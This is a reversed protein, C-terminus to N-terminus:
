VDLIEKYNLRLIECFKDIDEYTVDDFNIGVFHTEDAVENGSMMDDSPYEYSVSKLRFNKFVERCKVMDICCLVEDDYPDIDSTITDRGYMVTFNFNGNFADSLKKEFYDEDM